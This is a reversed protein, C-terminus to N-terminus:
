RASGFRTRISPKSGKLRPLRPLRPLRRPLAEPAAAGHCSGDTNPTGLSCLGALLGPENRSGRM